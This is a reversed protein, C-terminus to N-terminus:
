LTGTRGFRTMGDEQVQEMSYQLTRLMLDKGHADLQGELGVADLPHRAWFYSGPLDLCELLHYEEELMEQESAMTFRGARIDDNFKTGEFATMSTVLIMSPQTANELAATAEAAEMGKGAGATGLMLLHRHCIGAEDLRRCQDITERVTTGKNMYALVKDLGCEVGIYLDDVGAQALRRLDDDSKRAINEVRAYMSVKKVQPFYARILDCRELLRDASLAFPDAGVLYMRDVVDRHSGYSEAMDALYAEVEDLKWMRFPVGQFMSCFSCSNHTCGETIPLLFTAAEVPPRYVSGRYEM